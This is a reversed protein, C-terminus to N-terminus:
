TVANVSNMPAAPSQASWIGSGAADRAYDRFDRPERGLLARVGDTTHANRGDLVETFLYRFLAILDEPIEHEALAAAYDDMPVEAFGIERGSAAAIEAVAERFTLLSPGTLEYVRGQHGDETLAAVAADAIDGADIFPEPVDTVPLAVFGELVPDLLYDESFNQDFWSSRLITTEAGSDEVAQECLEAEPEGRGSLLVIRRVGSAVARAAFARITQPAGPVALDPYFSLYVSAVGHVAAPWTAPDDWDFAPSASRSGIRVPLGRAELRQVIRSGTKGTGGLVLTIDTNDRMPPM